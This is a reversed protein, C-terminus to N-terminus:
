YSRRYKGEAGGRRWMRGRVRVPGDWETHLRRLSDTKFESNIARSASYVYDWKISDREPFESSSPIFKELGQKYTVLVCMDSTRLIFLILSLLPSPRRLRPFQYSARGSPVIM